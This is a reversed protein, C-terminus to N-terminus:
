ASAIRTEPLDEEAQLVSDALVGALQSAVIAALAQIGDSTESGNRIEATLAGICGNPSLMPAAIAGSSVGPRTLVIQLLGTRYAAAAANDGSRPVHPMRALAQPSYGHALVPRLSTGTADTVWVVIGSAEMVEAARGLLRTLDDLERVRNLETCLEVTAKLVPVIERPLETSVQTAAVAPSPAVVAPAIAMAIVAEAPAEVPKTPADVADTAGEHLPAAVTNARGTPPLLVLLGIALLAIGAASAGAYLQQRRTEAEEADWTLYEAQRASEILRRASSASEGAESFIMDSAMLAQDTHLYQRARKDATRLELIAAAASGLAARADASTALPTLEELRSTVSELLTDVQSMWFGLGQGAAVYASEGQRIGAVSAAAERAVVDFARVASRRATLQRESQIAFFAAVGFAIWATVGVILRAAPSRM